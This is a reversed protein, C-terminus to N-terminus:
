KKKETETVLTKVVYDKRWETQLLSSSHRTSGGTDMGMYEITPQDIISILHFQKVTKDLYGVAM